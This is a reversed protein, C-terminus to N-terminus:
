NSRCQHSESLSKSRIFSGFPICVDAVCVQLAASRKQDKKAKVNCVKKTYEALNLVIKVQIADSQLTQWVM